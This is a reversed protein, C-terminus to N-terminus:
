KSPVGVGQGNFLQKNAREQWVSYPILATKLAIENLGVTKAIDEYRPNEENLVENMLNKTSARTLVPVPFEALYAGSLNALVRTRDGDIIENKEATIHVMKPTGGVGQNVTSLSYGNVVFFALDASNLKKSDVGQLRTMFYMNAGDAGSGIEIHDTYNESYGTFHMQFQRIRQKQNDYAVVVFVTQNQPDQMSQDYAQLVKAIEKNVFQQRKSGKPLLSAKKHIEAKQSELYSKSSRDIRQKHAEQIASVYDDLTKRDEFKLNKIVGGFLNGDGAGFIVGHYSSHNFEGMKDFSDSQRGSQSARSDAIVIAELGNTFSIGVTM